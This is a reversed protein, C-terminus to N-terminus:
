STVKANWIDKFISNLGFTFFCPCVRFGTRLHCANLFIYKDSLVEAVRGSDWERGWPLFVSNYDEVRLGNTNIEFQIM